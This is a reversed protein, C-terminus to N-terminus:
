DELRSLVLVRNGDPDSIYASREGWPEMRPEQLVAVGHGRLMEVARDCDEAYACLVFRESPAPAEAVAGIGLESTGLRLGVYQPEGDDPFRYTVKFGLLDCYFRLSRPLNPTSIIPFLESFLKAFRALPVDPM